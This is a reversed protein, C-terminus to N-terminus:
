TLDQGTQLVCLYYKLLQLRMGSNLSQFRAVYLLFLFSDIEQTCIKMRVNASRNFKRCYVRAIEYWKFWVDHWEGFM